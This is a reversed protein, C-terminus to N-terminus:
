AVVRRPVAKVGGTNARAMRARLKAKESRRRGCRLRRAGAAGLLEATTERASRQVVVAEMEGM